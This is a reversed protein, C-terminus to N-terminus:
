HSQKPENELPYGLDLPSLPKTQTQKKLNLQKNRIVYRTQKATKAQEKTPAGIVIKPEQGTGPGPKAIALICM